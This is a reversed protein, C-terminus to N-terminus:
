EATVRVRDLNECQVFIDGETGTRSSQIKVVPFYIGPKEFVHTTEVMVGGKSPMLKEEHSWDNDAEFDWAAKSISGAGEPASMWATFKVPEGAKVHVAKRGNAFAQVVPQLGKREKATDPVLIQGDKLRYVTDEAPEKGKECWDALDLLAQYLIGTYPIQHQPDQLEDAADGHLCHDNYYLRVHDELKEGREALKKEAAKKYWDGNWPFASEDLISCLILIKGHLNGTLDTGAGNKAVLPALLPKKQPYKFTGDPNRYQDYAHYSEDPVQHRQFSQMALYDSNDILIRDGPQLGGLPVEHTWAVSVGSLNIIDGEMSDIDCERGEAEGSLVRISCHYLNGTNEPVKEVRIRPVENGHCIVNQWSNDVNTYSADEKKEKKIIETVTTEFRVRDRAEPSDPDTGAYGEKTWFDTFYEPMVSYIYPALVMLAGDGMTKWAFWARDPFGLRHAELIAEQQEKNFGALIDGSGGPETADVLRELGEKGLLHMVRVRPCFNNPAAMPNAVVYPVGGDWIGETAELCGLTKFSGGSGGYCYGYPRKDTHYLKEAIKRSLEAANASSRFLREPDNLQFGGQNSIVFYAGHTLAFLIRNEQGTLHESEREDEPAPSLYQFFRGEYRDKAPYYFCFRVETGNEETGRFGGHVYYHRVPKDRWEEVDFYPDSFYPDEEPRYLKAEEM